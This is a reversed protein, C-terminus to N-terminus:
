RQGDAGLMPRSRAMASLVESPTLHQLREKARYSARLREWCEDMEAIANRELAAVELLHAIQEPSLHTQNTKTLLQLNPSGQHEGNPRSM